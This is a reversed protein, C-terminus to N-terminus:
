NVSEKISKIKTKVRQMTNDVQKPTLGLINAIEVYSLNRAMLLFVDYEKKTLEEKISKVLDIYSENDEMNKLPEHELDVVYDMLSQDDDYIYDLSLAENSIKYKNRNYKKIVTKLKREVCLTIFTPLSADKEENFRKLADSFGITCESYVEDYDANVKILYKSYKKILLNIIFKYKLYLINKAQEDDERYLMILEYDNSNDIDNIM